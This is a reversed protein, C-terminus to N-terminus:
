SDMCALFLSFLLNKSERPNRAEKHPNQEKGIGIRIKIRGVPADKNLLHSGKQLRISIINGDHSGFNVLLTTVHFFLVSHLDIPKWEKRPIPKQDLIIFNRIQTHAEIVDRSKQQREIGEEPM